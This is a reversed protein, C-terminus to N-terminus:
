NNRTSIHCSPSSTVKPHSLRTATSHGSLILSLRPPTAARPLGVQGRRRLSLSLGQNLFSSFCHFFSKFLLFFLITGRYCRDGALLSSCIGTETTCGVRLDDGQVSTSVVGCCFCFFSRRYSSLPSTHTFMECTSKNDRRAKDDKDM